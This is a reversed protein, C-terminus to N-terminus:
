VEWEGRQVVLRVTQSRLALGAFALAVAGLWVPASAIIAAAVWCVSLGLLFHEWAATTHWRSIRDLM